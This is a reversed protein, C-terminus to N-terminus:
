PVAFVTALPKSLQFVIFTDADTTPDVSYAIM